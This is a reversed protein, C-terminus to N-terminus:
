PPSVNEPEHTTGRAEVSRERASGRAEVSRERASGRAEVLRAARRGYLRSLLLYALVSSGIGLADALLDAADGSRGPVYAQHLEDVLGLGLSLWGAAVFRLRQRPWSMQLAHAMFFGLAGYELFHVGKDRLPVSDILEITVSQSSLIWILLTYACVPLWSLAITLQRKAM